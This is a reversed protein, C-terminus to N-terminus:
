HLGLEEDVEVIRNATVRAFNQLKGGPWRIELDVHSAQGLGFHVRPDSASYISGATTAESIQALGETRASVRAGLGFRNGTRGRLRITIWNNTNGGDNRLLSPHDDINLVVVDMDGDNDLDGFAAGRSSKEELIGSGSTRSAEAFTGNGLNRFLLRQQYYKETRTPDNILHPYTHGTAVFIDKWGDNDYDLFRTGWSVFPMTAQAIGNRSSHESFQGNQENHYLNNYDFAFNTKTVDLWGDNDYDGFDVGMGAQELGEESVAVGSELGAEEFTGNGLNRFLYSPCSDNAVYIDPWGDNNYDGVAVGLGYYPYKETLGAPATVDTFTGDGNNRYFADFEGPLGRPGCMVTVGRYNCTRTEGKRAIKALDFKIYHAVYLDLDGDRDYDVYAAGASWRSDKLGARETADSFTGDGNNHYLIKGTLGLVLIDPFGDNNYDGAACGMGWGRGEVGAQRTVDTYTGDPNARYLANGHNIGKGLDELTNGNVFYIDLRGDNDYDMLGVGGGKAEFIYNKQPSGSVHKFRIGATRGIDTFTPLGSSQGGWGV